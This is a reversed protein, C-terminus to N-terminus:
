LFPKIFINKRYRSSFNKDRQFIKGKKIHLMLKRIKEIAFIVLEKKKDRKKRGIKNRKKFYKLSKALDKILFSRKDLFKKKDLM